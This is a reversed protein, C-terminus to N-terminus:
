CSHNTAFFIINIQFENRDYDHVRINLTNLNYLIYWSLICVNIKYETKIKLQCEEENREQTYQSISQKSDTFM